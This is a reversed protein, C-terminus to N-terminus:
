GDNVKVAQLSLAVNKQNWIHNIRDTFTKDFDTLETAWHAAFLYQSGPHELGFRRDYDARLSM